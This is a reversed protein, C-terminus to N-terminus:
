VLITFCLYYRKKYTGDEMNHTVIIYAIIVVWAIVFLISIKKYQDM